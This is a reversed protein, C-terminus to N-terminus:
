SHMVHAAMNHWEWWLEFSFTLFNSRSLVQSRHAPSTTCFTRVHPSKRSHSPAQRHPPDSHALSLAHYRVPSFRNAILHTSEACRCRCIQVHGNRRMGNSLAAQIMGNAEYEIFKLSRNHPCTPPLLSCAAYPGAVQVDCVVTPILLLLPIMSAHQCDRCHTLHSPNLVHAATDATRSM